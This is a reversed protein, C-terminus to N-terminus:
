EGRELKDAMYACLDRRLEGQKGCWLNETKVYQMSHTWWFKLSTRPIPFSYEGSHKNWGQILRLSDDMQVHLVMCIEACIGKTEDKPRVEGSALKRLHEIIAQKNEM